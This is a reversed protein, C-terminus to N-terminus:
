DKPLKSMLYEIVADSGGPIDLLEESPKICGTLKRIDEIAKKTVPFNYKKVLHKVTELKSSMKSDNNGAGAHSLINYGSSDQAAIDAGHEILYDLIELHGARAAWHLPLRGELDPSAVIDPYKSLLYEVVDKHEGLIAADLAFKHQIPLVRGTGLLYEIVELCGSLSAAIYASYGNRDTTNLNAHCTEYLYKVVDLHNQEAALIMPTSGFRTRDNVDAHCCEHLWRVLDLQGYRAAWLIGKHKLFYKQVNPAADYLLGSEIKRGLKDVFYDVVPVNGNQAALYFSHTKILEKEEESLKKEPGMQDVKALLYEFINLEGTKAATYVIEYDNASIDVNLTDVLNEFQEIDGEEIASLLFEQPDLEMANLNAFSDVGAFAGLIAFHSLIIKTIKM